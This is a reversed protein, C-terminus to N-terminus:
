AEAIRLGKVGHHVTYGRQGPWGTGIVADARLARSLVLHRTLMDPQHKPGLRRGFGQRMAVEPPRCFLAKSLMGAYCAYVCCPLLKPGCQLWQRCSPSSFSVCEDLLLCYPADENSRGGIKPAAGAKHRQWAVAFGDRPSSQRRRRNRRSVMSQRWCKEGHFM